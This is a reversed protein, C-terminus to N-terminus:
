VISIVFKFFKVCKSKDYLRRESNGNENVFRGNRSNFTDCLRKGVSCENGLIKSILRLQENFYSLLKIAFDFPLPKHLLINIM